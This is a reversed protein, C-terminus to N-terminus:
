KKLEKYTYPLLVGACHKAAIELSKVLRDKPRKIHSLGEFAGIAYAYGCGIASSQAAPIGIQFDDDIEYLKGNYGLLFNSDFSEVNSDIKCYGKEKFLTRLSEIFHSVLYHFDSIGEPRPPPNFDFRFIQGSRFSGAYGVIISPDSELAFVKEDARQTKDWGSFGGCDGAIYVGNKDAFGIICTGTGTRM